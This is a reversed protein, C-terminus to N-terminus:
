QSERAQWGVLADAGELEILERWEDALLEFAQAAAFKQIVRDAEDGSAFRADALAMRQVTLADSFLWVYTRAAHANPYPQDARRLARGPKSLSAEYCVELSNM